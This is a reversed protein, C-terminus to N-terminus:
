WDIESDSAGPKDVVVDEVEFPLRDVDSREEVKDTNESKQEETRQKSFLAMYSDLASNATGSSQPLPATKQEKKEDVASFKLKRSADNRAKLKEAFSISPDLRDAPHEDVAAPATEEAKKSIGAHDITASGETVSNPVFARPTEDDELQQQEVSAASKSPVANLFSINSRKSNEKANTKMPSSYLSTSTKMSRCFDDYNESISLAPSSGFQDQTMSRAATVCDITTDLTKALNELTAFREKINRFESSCESLASSSVSTGESSDTDRLLKRTRVSVGPKGAHHEGSRVVAERFVDKRVARLMDRLYDRESTLSTIKDNMMRLVTKMERIKMQYVDIEQAKAVENSTNPVATARNVSRMQELEQKLFSNEERLREAEYKYRSLQHNEEVQKRLRESAFQLDEELTNVRAMRSRLEYVETGNESIKKKLTANEKELEAIKEKLQLQEEELEVKFLAKLEERKAGLREWEQNLKEVDSAFKAHFETKIRDLHEKNLTLEALRTELSKRSIELASEKEALQLEIKHRLVREREAFEDVLRLRERELERRKVDLQETYETKIDSLRRATEIRDRERQQQLKKEYRREVRKCLKEAILKLQLQADSTPLWKDVNAPSHDLAQPIQVNNSLARYVARTLISEM